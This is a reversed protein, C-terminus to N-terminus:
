LISEVNNQHLMKKDIHLNTLPVLFSLVSVAAIYKIIFQVSFFTWNFEAWGRVYM